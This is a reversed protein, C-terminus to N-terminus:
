FIKFGLALLVAILLPQHLLYITLSKRGLFSLARVVANNSMERIKFRRQGNRYLRNGSYIGLLTVGFWPLLPFYDFTYFNEPILGMWLLWSFDFRLSYLYIGFLVILFGLIANIKRKDLFFYGLITSIGIFHLIGFVIYSEPFTFFTIATIVLGLGFIELGRILIKKFSKTKNQNYFLTLSIGSIFIFTGAISYAYNIGFDLKYIGLYNLAFSYNFLVMNIIAFGRLADIEWFRELSM